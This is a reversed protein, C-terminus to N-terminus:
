TEVLQAAKDPDTAQANNQTQALSSQDPQCLGKIKCTYWWWSGTGWLGALLLVLLTKFKM